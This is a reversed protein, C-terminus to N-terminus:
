DIFCRILRSIHQMNYYLKSKIFKRINKAVQYNQVVPGDIVSIINDPSNIDPREGNNLWWQLTQSLNDPHYAPLPLLGLESMPVKLVTGIASYKPATPALLTCLDNLQPKSYGLSHFHLLSLNGSGKDVYNSTFIM